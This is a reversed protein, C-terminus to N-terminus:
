VMANRKHITRRNEYMRVNLVGSAAYFEAPMSNNAACAIRREVFQEIWCGLRRSAEGFGGFHKVCGGGTEYASRAVAGEDMAADMAPARISVVRFM